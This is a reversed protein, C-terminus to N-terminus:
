ALREVHMSTGLKQPLEMVKKLFLALLEVADYSTDGVLIKEKNIARQLLCDVCLVESTKAMKRAEDGYYWMGVNKRRALILPIRYNESGAITSVTDPEEMNLQYFSVMAYTDCLDIGLYYANNKKDM